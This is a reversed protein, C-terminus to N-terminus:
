SVSLCGDATNCAVYLIVERVKEKDSDTMRERHKVKGENLSKIVKTNYKKTEKQIKRLSNRESM